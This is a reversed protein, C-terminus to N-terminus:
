AAFNMAVSIRTGAGSYATVRHGLWAPFVVLMGTEPYIREGLGATVCQSITMKVTPAHMLPLPGRPDLFELAGGMTDAGNIGGDDVYFVASWYAGPHYHLDNADGARNINAWANTKWTIRERSLGGERVVGTFNDIVELAGAVLDAGPAGAWALLDDESQWSTTNSHQVGPTSAERQLIASRLEECLTQSQQLKATLLPTPFLADIKM